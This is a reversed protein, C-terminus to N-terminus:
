LRWKTEKKYEVANKDQLLIYEPLIAQGNQSPQTFYRAGDGDFYGCFLYGEFHRLISGIELYHYNSAALNDPNDRVTVIGDSAVPLRIKDVRKQAPKEIIIEIYQPQFPMGNDAIPQFFGIRKTAGDLYGNFLHQRLHYMIKGIELYHFTYLQVGADTDHQHKIFGNDDAYFDVVGTEDILLHMHVPEVTAARKSIEDNYREFARPYKKMAAELSHKRLKSTFTFNEPVELFWLIRGSESALIFPSTNVVIAYPHRDDYSLCHGEIPTAIDGIKM